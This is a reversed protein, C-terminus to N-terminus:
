IYTGGFSQFPWLLSTFLCFLFVYTFISCIIEVFGQFGLLRQAFMLLQGGFYFLIQFLQPPYLKSLTAPSHAFARHLCFSLCWWLEGDLLYLFISLVSSRWPHNWLFLFSGASCVGSKLVKQRLVQLGLMWAAFPLHCRTHHVCTYWEDSYMNLSANQMMQLKHWSEEIQPCNEKGM